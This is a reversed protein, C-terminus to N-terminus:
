QIVQRREPPNIILIAKGKIDNRWFKVLVISDAYPIYAFIFFTGDPLYTSGTINPIQALPKFNDEIQEGNIFIVGNRIEIFDGPLGIIRELTPPYYSHKALVIDGRAPEQQKYSRRNVIVVDGKLFTPSLADSPVTVHLFFNNIIVLSFFYMLFFTSVGSLIIGLRVRINVSFKHRQYYIITADYSSCLALLLLLFLIFNSAPTFVLIIFLVIFLITLTLFLLSVRIRRQFLQIFGPALGLIIIGVIKLYVPITDFIFKILPQICRFLYRSLNILSQNIKIEKVSRRFFFRPKKKARPPYTSIELNDTLSSGCQLCDKSDPTNEWGCQRCKM